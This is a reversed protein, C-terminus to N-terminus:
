HKQPLADDGTPRIWGTVPYDNRYGKQSTPLPPMHAKGDRLELTFEAHIEKGTQYNLPVNAQLVHVRNGQVKTVIATHYQGPRPGKAVLIDGARPPVTGDNFHREFQPMEREVPGNATFFVGKGTKLFEYPQGQTPYKKGQSQFYRYAFEGCQEVQDGFGAITSRNRPQVKPDLIIESDPTAIATTTPRDALSAAIQARTKAGVRGSPEIGHAEQFAVVAAETNAGYYGTNQPYHFFGLRRLSEQLERVEDGSSGLALAAEVRGLQTRDDDREPRRTLRLSYGPVPVGV